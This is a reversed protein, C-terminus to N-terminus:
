PSGSSGGNERSCQTLETHPYLTIGPEQFLDKLRDAVLCAGCKQCVETAKCCLRAARGGFFPTKEVLAVTLGLRALELATTIGAIGGGLVVASYKEPNNM